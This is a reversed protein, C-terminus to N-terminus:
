FSFDTTLWSQAKTCARIKYISICKYMCDAIIFHIYIFSASFSYWEVWEGKGYSNRGYLNKRLSNIYKSLLACLYSETCLKINVSFSLFFLSLISCKHICLIRKVTQMFIYGDLKLSSIFWVLHRWNFTIFSCCLIDDIEIGHSLHFNRM